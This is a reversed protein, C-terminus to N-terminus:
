KARNPFGQVFEVENLLEDPVEQGSSKIKQIVNELHHVKQTTKIEFRELAEKYMPNAAFTGRTKKDFPCYTIMIQRAIKNLRPSGNGEFIVWTIYDRVFMEKFSNKAKTMGVKIKEKADASLENNKKYFQIYDFYESTLSRDSLDNWRAGQIRKCMEWRYEGTLRVITTQLDELHFASIMYRSPTSRKKGEIEQWMVGRTGINPMLIFDPTIRNNIAEKSIGCRENVYLSERYFASYDTAELKKICENLVDPTVMCSQLPRIVDHESFVPCFSTLRGFTIKNVLPFMNNLEFVVREAPDTAMKVEQSTDIKGQVRLEHLYGVFDTDFENRSPEKELNYIAKLWNYITYVGQSVDGDFNEAIAYLFQANAAGALEEDVYGFNFFMKLIVPINNDRLSCEFAERYVEYFLKSIELRLKRVADESSAKDPCKKYQDILSRFKGATEGDVGSYDLITDLSGILNAESASEKSDSSESIASMSAVRSNFEDIRAATLEADVLNKKSLVTEINTILSKVKDSEPSGPKLRMYLSALLDFLDMRSERMLVSGYDELSTSLESFLPLINHIDLSSQMVYGYLYGPYGSLTNKLEAPFEKITKYYPLYWDPIEESLSVESLSELEPLSRAIVNNHSCIDIYTSYYEKILNYLVKCSDMDSKFSVYLSSIQSIMSNYMMKAVDPNLKAFNLIASANKIPFSVIGTPELTTYTFFNSDFAMDCLGIVDGRKLVYDVGSYTAKVSGSVIVHISDLPSGESVIITNKAIEKAAM